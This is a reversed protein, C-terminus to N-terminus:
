FVSVDLDVINFNFVKFVLYVLFLMEFLILTKLVSVFFTLSRLERELMRERIIELCHGAVVSQKTKASFSGKHYIPLGTVERHTRQAHYSGWGTGTIFEVTSRKQIVQFHREM